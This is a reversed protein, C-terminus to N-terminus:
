ETKRTLELVEAINTKFCKGLEGSKVGEHMSSYIEQFAQLDEGALPANTGILTVVSQNLADESIPMFNYSSNVKQRVGKVWVYIIPGEEPDFDVRIVTLSAGPLEDPAARFTWVQGSRFRSTTPMM